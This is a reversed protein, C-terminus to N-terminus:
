LYMQYAGFARGVAEYQYSFDSFMCSVHLSDSFSCYWMM